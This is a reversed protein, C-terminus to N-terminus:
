RDPYEYPEVEERAFVRICHNDTDAVIYNDYSDVAVDSPLRLLPGAHSETHKTPAPPLPADVGARGMGDWRVM